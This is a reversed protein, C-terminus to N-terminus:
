VPTAIPRVAAPNRNVGRVLTGYIGVSPTAKLGRPFRLAGRHKPQDCQWPAPAPPRRASSGSRRDCDRDAASTSRAGHRAAFNRSRPNGRCRSSSGRRRVRRRSRGGSPTRRDAELRVCRAPRIPASPRARPATGCVLLCTLTFVLMYTPISTWWFVMSMVTASSPRSPRTQRKPVMPPSRCLVRRVHGNGCLVM